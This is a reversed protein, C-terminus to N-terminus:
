SGGATKIVPLRVYSGYSPDHFVTQTAIVGGADVGFAHGTNMNRDFRPFNSSAIDLRIRHGRKFVISVSALDIVYENVEGPVVLAPQFLGNRYRARIVGEAVNYASGGPYVDVLKATFDTDVATTAAFLHVEVPGPVLKGSPLNRGGTTPVPDLPNYDYRDPPQSGPAGTTLTGDGAASNANGKGSLFYRTWTTRPLPWTDADRWENRGMVFYRIAPIEVDQEKVYRDFFALQRQRAFAADGNAAYGFHLAGTYKPLYRGHVWPGCLIHQGRRATDTAGKERMSNFGRFLSGCYMDYWGGSHFCPVRIRGFDWHLDAETEVKSLFADATRAAFGERLGDFDFHPVENFPLYELV